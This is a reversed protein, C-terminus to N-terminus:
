YNDDELPEDGSIIRPIMPNFAEEDGSETDDSSWDKLDNFKGGDNLELGYSREFNKTLGRSGSIFSPEKAQSPDRYTERIILTVSNDDIKTINAEYKNGGEILKSM